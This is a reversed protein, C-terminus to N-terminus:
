RLNLRVEERDLYRWKGEALNGLELNGLAIRQLDEIYIDLSRFMRRIQRKKGETLVILFNNDGLYQVKKARVVGDGEGIDIGKKFYNEINKVDVGALNRVRVKYKKEHEFRPHTLEQAMEGDNTLFILGRSDKDLRGVVFLREKVRVLDFVNDEGEFKRSTCTYGKPKNLIIYIKNKQLEIKEGDICVNDSEDARMGLHAVECNVQVRGRIILEEARRRSCCGSEAIFKQLVMKKM